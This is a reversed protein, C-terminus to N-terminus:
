SFINSDKGARNVRAHRRDAFHAVQLDDDLNRGLTLSM